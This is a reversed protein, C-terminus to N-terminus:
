LKTTTRCSCWRDLYDCVHIQAPWHNMEFRWAHEIDDLQLEEMPKMINLTSTSLNRDTSKAPNSHSAQKRIGKWVWMNCLFYVNKTCRGAERPYSLTKAGTDQILCGPGRPQEAQVEQKDRGKTCYYKKTHFRNVKSTSLVLLSRCYRRAM